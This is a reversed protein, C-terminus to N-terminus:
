IGLIRSIRDGTGGFNARGKEIMDLVNELQTGVQLHDPRVCLRNDCIHMVYKDVALENVLSASVRHALVQTYTRGTREYDDPPTRVSVLGYGSTNKAGTWNWCNDTKEVKGWFKVLDVAYGTVDKKNTSKNYGTMDLMTTLHLSFDLIKM